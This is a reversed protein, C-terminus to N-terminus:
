PDVISVGLAFHSFDPSWKEAFWQGQYFGGFGVSPAADTYLALSESSEPVDNYFFSIGNWNNLLHSWFRLDSRCGEDLCVLDSLKIVSHALNLLCSIFSRGQPIIRMAFNLHGLLSLLERKTVVDSSQFSEAISRIRVLKENPLSAQMEVSDLLIGLFVLSKCPGETKEISLPVGVDHFVQKLCDLVSTEPSPFDILLFDDLLHLVFPLKSVNLLIWCLAESLCNFIYPSSRCGFTLRVAFYFKSEWKVGFLHWDAPHIPMVKFADTIDAKALWSGHGAIKILHIANDVSAYYLSFPQQPICENVSAITDSHPSSMDFILRKKGSYKRTAVGLSNIRPGPSSHSLQVSTVASATSPTVAASSGQLPPLATSPTSQNQVTPDTPFHQSAPASSSTSPGSAINEFNTMRTELGKVSQSLVHIAQLIQDSVPEGLTGAQRQLCPQVDPGPSTPKDPHHDPAPNGLIQSAMILLDERSTGSQIPIGRGELLNIMQESPRGAWPSERALVRTSRRKPSPSPPIMDDDYSDSIPLSAIEKLSM